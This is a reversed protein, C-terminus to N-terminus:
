SCKDFADLPALICASCLLSESSPFSLESNSSSSDVLCPLPSSCTTCRPAQSTVTSTGALRGSLASVVSLKGSLPQQLTSFSVSFGSSSAQHFIRTNQCLWLPFFRMIVEHFRKAGLLFVLFTENWSYPGCGLVQISLLLSLMLLTFILERSLLFTFFLKPIVCSM